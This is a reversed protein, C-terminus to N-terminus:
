SRESASASDRELIEPHFVSCEALFKAQMESRSIAGVEDFSWDVADPCADSILEEERACGEFYRHRVAKQATARAFPDFRLLTEVFSLSESTASPFLSSWDIPESHPLKQLFSRGPSSQRLWSLDADRPTGLVALIKRVQDKCDKGTFLAKRGLLECFICGSAWIDTAGDFKLGCLDLEPARYWRVYIRDECDAVGFARASGMDYIRLDCDRGVLVNTPILDCHVVRVSHLYCLGRLLQYTLYQFHGDSLDQKSYIVRHLTADMCGTVIYVDEFDEQSQPPYLDLFQVLNPHQFHRMLKVERLYKRADHLDNFARAIKKVAVYGGTKLDRFAAVTGFQGSSIRRVPELSTPVRYSPGDESFCVIHFDADLLTRRARTVSIAAGDSIDLDSLVTDYRGGVFKEGAVLVQEGAPVGLVSQIGQRLERLTASPSLQLASERGSLLRVCVTVAGPFPLLPDRPATQLEDQEM